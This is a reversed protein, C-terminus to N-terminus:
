KRLQVSVLKVPVEGHNIPRHPVGAKIYFADGAGAKFTGRGNVELTLEGAFVIGLIDGKHSTKELRRSKPMYEEYSLQAKIDPHKPFAFYWTHEEDESLVMNDRHFVIRESPDNSAGNLFFEYLELDMSEVIKQLSLVTPSVKGAEVKSILSVSTGSQAALERMSLKREERLAKLRQGIEPLDVKNRPM